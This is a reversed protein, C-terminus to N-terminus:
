GLITVISKYFKNTFCRSLDHHVAQRVGTICSSRTLM